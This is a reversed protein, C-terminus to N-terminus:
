LNQVVWEFERRISEYLDRKMGQPLVDWTYTEIELHRTFQRNRLAAFTKLIGAQTSDLVGYSEVFIPVHFHIRWEAAQPDDLHELAQPLDPYQTLSGDHNRQIVQHLYTSEIFPQLAKQVAPRSGRHEPLMIQVASSVQIKGVRIGLPAIADLFDSPEEYAVAVHCTDFCLQIHTLLAERAAEATIKLESALVDAGYTLLWDRYFAVVEGSNELVGDPEPELDLHLLKGTDQRVRYMASAVQCVNRTMLEWTARDTLDVWRKYSLPSTSIGGSEVDEPLLAALIHVLRLTYAVREDDRWDPAHVNEKVPQNHFPGYPFGNITFVYLGNEDLWAKLEDLHDGECLAISEVGSIRMGIGFPAHPSLAAKLKPAYHKLTNFAQEWGTSPHINTCYTLHIAPLIGTRMVNDSPNSIPLNLLASGM